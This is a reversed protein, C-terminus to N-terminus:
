ASYAMLESCFTGGKIVIEGSSTRVKSYATIVVEEESSDDTQVLKHKSMEVSVPIKFV